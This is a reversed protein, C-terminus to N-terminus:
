MTTHHLWDRCPPPPSHSCQSPWPLVLSPGFKPRTWVQDLTNCFTEWIVQVQLYSRQNEGCGLKWLPFSLGLSTLHSAWSCVTLSYCLHSGSGPSPNRICQQGWQLWFLYLCAGTISPLEAISSFHSAPLTPLFTIRCYISGLPPSPCRSPFTHGSIASCGKLLLSTRPFSRAAAGVNLLEQPLWLLAMDVLGM